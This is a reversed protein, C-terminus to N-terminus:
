NFEIEKIVQRPMPLSMVILSADSSHQQLMERLRLQRYTKELLQKYEVHSVFYGDNQGEMFGDLVKSHLQITEDKPKDTVGQLMTLSAYDIRLKSLLNAM